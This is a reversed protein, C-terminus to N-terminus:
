FPRTILNSLAIPFVQAVDFDTSSSNASFVIKVDRSTEVAGFNSGDFVVVDNFSSYKILALKFLAHRNTNQIMVQGEM